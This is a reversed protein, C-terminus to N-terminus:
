RYRSSTLVYGMGFSYCLKHLRLEIMRPFLISSNSKPIRIANSQADIIGGGYLVDLFVANKCREELLKALSFESNRTRHHLNTVLGNSWEM